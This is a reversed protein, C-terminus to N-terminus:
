RLHSRSETDTIIDRRRLTSQQRHETSRYVTMDDRSRESMRFVQEEALPLAAGDPGEGQRGRGDAM